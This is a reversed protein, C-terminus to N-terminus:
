IQNLLAFEGHLLKAAHNYAIAAEQPTPFLGLYHQKYNKKIYAKWKRTQGHFTVGKYGSTNARTKTRNRMNEAQSAMRLNRVRNDLPDGNVHDVRVKEVSVGSLRMVERHLYLRAKAPKFWTSCYGNAGLSWSQGELLDVLGADVTALQDSNSLVLLAIGQREEQCAPAQPAAFCDPRPLPDTM